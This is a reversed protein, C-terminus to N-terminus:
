LDRTNENWRGISKEGAVYLRNNLVAWDNVWSGRILNTAFEWTEGNDPSRYMIDGDTAKWLYGDFETMSLIKRAGLAWEKSAEHWTEGKDKSTYTGRWFMVNFIKDRTILIRRVEGCYCEGNVDDCRLGDQLPKWTVGADDSRFVGKASAGAYVTKGDIAIATIAAEEPLTTHWTHGHDRSIYIGKTTGTYIRNGEAELVFLMGTDAGDVLQIWTNVGGDLGQALTTTVLFLFIFAIRM